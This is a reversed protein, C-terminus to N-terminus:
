GELDEYVKSLESFRGLNGRLAQLESELELIRQQLKPVQSDERARKLAANDVSKPERQAKVGKKTQQPLLKRARLKDEFTKLAAGALTKDNSINKRDFGCADAVASREILGTSKNIMEILQQDTVNETWAELQSKHAQALQSGNLKKQTKDTM